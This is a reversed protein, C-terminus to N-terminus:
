NGPTAVPQPGCAAEAEATAGHKLLPAACKNWDLVEALYANLNPDDRQEPMAGCQDTTGDAQHKAMCENWAKMDAVYETVIKADAARAPTSTPATAPKNSVPDINIDSSSSDFMGALVLVGAAVLAAVAVILVKAARSPKRPVPLPPTADVRPPAFSTTTTM